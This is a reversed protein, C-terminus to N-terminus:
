FIIMDHQAAGCLLWRGQARRLLVFHSTGPSTQGHAVYLLATNGDASFAVRSLSVVGDRLAFGALGGPRSLRGQRAPGGVLEQMAPTASNPRAPEELVNLGYEGPGPLLINDAVLVQQGRVADWARALAPLTKDKEPGTDQGGCDRLLEALADKRLAPAALTQGQALRAKATDALYQMPQGLNPDPRPPAGTEADKQGAQETKGGSHFFDAWVAREQASLEPGRPRTKVQPRFGQALREFIQSSAEATAQPTDLLLVFFGTPQPLVVTRKLVPVREDLGILTRVGPTEARWVAAGSPLGSLSAKVVTMATANAQAPRELDHLFREATRHASAVYRVSIQTYDLRAEGKALLKLEFDGGSALRDEEELTWGPPRPLSFYRGKPEFRQWDRVARQGAPAAAPAPVPDPTLDAPPRPPAPEQSVPQCDPKVVCGEACRSVLAAVRDPGAALETQTDARKLCDLACDKDVTGCHVPCETLCPRLCSEGGGKDKDACNSLCRRLCAQSTAALAADALGVGPLGVGTLIMGALVLCATRLMRALRPARNRTVPM